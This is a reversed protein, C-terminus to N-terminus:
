GQILKPFRRALILATYSARNMARVSVVSSLAHKTIAPVIFQAVNRAMSYTPQTVNKAVRLKEQNM